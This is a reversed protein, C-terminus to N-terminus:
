GGIRIVKTNTGPRDNNYMEMMEKEKKEMIEEFKAKTVKEGKKPAKIVFKEKPNLTLKSCLITTRDDNVELILGPLGWYEGPGHGVPIEPTYWATVTKDVTKTELLNVAKDKKPAEEDPFPLPEKAKYVATAKYCTYNGIKKSESGLKWEWKKLSDSVLFEKGFAETELLSKKEKLNQYQKGGGGSINVSIGGVAVAAPDELKQQEEYIAASKDFHLTYTKEMAKKLQESLAKHLEADVESPKGDGSSIDMDFNTKSEYVAIGQFDQASVAFACVLSVYSFLKKM